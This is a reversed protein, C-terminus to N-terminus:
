EAIVAIKDGPSVVFYETQGAALRMSSSTAVPNTGGVVVHCAVDAAVRVIGTSVSFASSQASVGSVSVAQTAVAPAKAAQYYVPLPPAGVFETVYLTAANCFSSAVLCLLALVSQRAM